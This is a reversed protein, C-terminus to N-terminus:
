CNCRPRSRTTGSPTQRLSKMSSCWRRGSPDLWVTTSGPKVQPPDGRSVKPAHLQVPKLYDPSLRYWFLAAPPQNSAINDRRTVTKINERVHDLYAKLAKSLFAKFAPTAIERRDHITIRVQDMSAGASRVQVRSAGGYAEIDDRQDLTEGICMIPTLGAAIATHVKKNILADDEGKGITHRRESHGLIVYTCGCDVLM